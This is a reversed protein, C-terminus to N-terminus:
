SKTILFFCFNSKIFFSNSLISYLATAEPTFVAATPTAAPVVTAPKAGLAAIATAVVNPVAEVPVAMEVKDPAAAVLAASAHNPPPANAAPPPPVAAPVASKASEPGIPHAIPPVPINNLPNDILPFFLSAISCYLLSVAFKFFFITVKFNAVFFIWFILLPKILSLSM